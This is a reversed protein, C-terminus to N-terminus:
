ICLCISSFPWSRIFSKFLFFFFFFFFFFFVFLLLLVELCSPCFTGGCSTHVMLENDTLEELCIACSKWKDESSSSIIADNDARQDEGTEITVTVDAPGSATNNSQNWDHSEPLQDDARESWEWMSTGILDSLQPDSTLGLDATLTVGSQSASVTADALSSSAGCDQYNSFSTQADFMCSDTNFSGMHSFIDDQGEARQQSGTDWAVVGAEHTERENNSNIADAKLPELEFAYIKRSSDNVYRLM